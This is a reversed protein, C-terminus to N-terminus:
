GRRKSTSYEFKYSQVTSTGYQLEFLIRRGCLIRGYPIRVGAIRGYSYRVRITGSYRVREPTLVASLLGSIRTNSRTIAVDIYLDVLSTPPLTPNTLCPHCTHPPHKLQSTLTNQNHHYHSSRLVNPPPRSQYPMPPM